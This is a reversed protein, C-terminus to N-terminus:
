RTHENQHREKLKKMKKHYKALSKDCTEQFTDKKMLGLAQLTETVCIYLALGGVAIQVFVIFYGFALLM